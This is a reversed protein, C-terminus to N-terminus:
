LGDPLDETYKPRITGQNSALQECTKLFLKLNHDTTPESCVLLCSRTHEKSELEVGNEVMVAVPENMSIDKGDLVHSSIKITADLDLVYTKGNFEVQMPPIPRAATKSQRSRLGLSHAYDLLEKPASGVSIRMSHFSTLRIDMPRSPLMMNISTEM